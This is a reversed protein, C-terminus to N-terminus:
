VHTCERKLSTLEFAKIKIGQAVFIKEFKTKFSSLFHAPHELRLDTTKLDINFLKQNDLIKEMWLAYGDHDTKIYFKGGPKLVKYAIELFHTQFLRKKQHKTKPWPDPFFYFLTDAENEDFLFGIREGKARLFRFNKHTLQDLKKALAFSRKFRYDMGVFNIDPNKECYEMMFHGYGSGIELCIPAKRKFVDQNWKGRLAEGQEGCFVFDNFDGLRDNYPNKTKYKFDQLYTHDVM